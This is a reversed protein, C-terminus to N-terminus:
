ILFYFSIINPADRLGLFKNLAASAVHDNLDCKTKHVIKFSHSKLEKTKKWIVYGKNIDEIKNGCVDCYWEALPQDM